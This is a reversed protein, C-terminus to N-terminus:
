PYGASRHGARVSSLEDDDTTTTLFAPSAPEPSPRGGGHSDGAGGYEREEGESLMELSGPSEGSRKAYWGVCCPPRHQPSPRPGDTTIPFSSPYTHSSLVGAAAGFPSGSVLDSLSPGGATAAAAASGAPDDSLPITSARPSRTSRNSPPSRCSRRPILPTSPPLGPAPPLLPRREQVTSRASPPPPHSSSPPKPHPPPPTGPPYSGHGPGPSPVAFSVQLKPDAPAPWSAAHCAPSGGASQSSLSQQQRATVIPTFGMDLFRSWLISELM